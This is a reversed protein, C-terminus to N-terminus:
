IESPVNFYDQYRKYAKREIKIQESDGLNYKHVPRSSRPNDAMYKSIAQQAADTFKIGFYEYITQAVKVPDQMFDQYQVNCLVDKPIVGNELLDIPMNLLQASAEANTYMALAEGMAPKDSRAWFLSGVLNIMSSLAKVPDRHIWVLRIDPFVKFLAPFEMMAAPNKLVWNRCPNKWQLLKLIRKEYEYQISLDQTQMYATYSPVYGGFGNFFTLTRFCFFHLFPNEIPLEAAFEHMATVEPVVRPIQKIRQDCLAIRPDTNYTAAEPPPCPFSATWQLLANVDPDQSMMNHLASTGSRGQGVIMLPKVIEQEDIEPHKKYTDEIKLRQELSNLIDSRNMLRGMLNLNAEEDLSKILVKFPEYWSEDGFDSLGTNAKAHEILSNEDLPVVSKIDM